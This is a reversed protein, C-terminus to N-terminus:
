STRQLPPSHRCLHSILGLLPQRRREPAGESRSTLGARTLGMGLRAVSETGRQSSEVDTPGLLVNARRSATERQFGQCLTTGDRMVKAVRKGNIAKGLILKSPSTSAPMVKSNPVPAM